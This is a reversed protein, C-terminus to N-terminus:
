NLWTVRPDMEERDNWLMWTSCVLGRCCFFHKQTFPPLNVLFSLLFPMHPSSLSETLRKGLCESWANWPVLLHFSLGRERVCEGMEPTRGSFQSGGLSFFFPLVPFLGLGSLCGLTARVPGCPERVNPVGHRQCEVASLESTCGPLDVCTCSGWAEPWCSFHTITM